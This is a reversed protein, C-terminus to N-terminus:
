DLHAAYAPERWACIVLPLVGAATASDSSTWRWSRLVGVLALNDPYLSFLVGAATRPQSFVILRKGPRRLAECCWGTGRHHIPPLWLTPATKPRESIGTTSCRQVCTKRRMRACSLVVTRAAKALDLLWANEPNYVVFVRKVDPAL